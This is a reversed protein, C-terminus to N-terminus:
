SMTRVVKFFYNKRSPGIRKMEIYLPKLPNVQFSDRPNHIEPKHPRNM